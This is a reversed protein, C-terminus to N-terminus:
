EKVCEFVENHEETAENFYDYRIKLEDQSDRKSLMYAYIYAEGRAQAIVEKKPRKPSSDVSIPLSIEGGKVALSGYLRFRHGGAEFDFNLESFTNEESSKKAIKNQLNEPEDTDCPLTSSIGRRATSVLERVSVFLINEDKDYRM